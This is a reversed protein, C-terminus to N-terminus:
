NQNKAYRLKKLTYLLTEQDFIYSLFIYLSINVVIALMLIILNYNHFAYKFIVIVSAAVLTNLASYSIIGILEWIRLNLFKSVKVGFGIASVLNSFFVALSTGLIGLELTFPYILIILVFLRVPQWKTSIEPHGAGQFLPGATVSISRVLGALTLIQMCPVMHLWKQGLFLITFDQAFIFILGALPFILFVVAKLVKLYAEKLRKSNEQIQSFAPFTIQSVTHSIETSPLNSILYAMQYYGLASIGIFKGVFIDDGKTILFVLISSGIVWKGYEFLEKFKEFDFKLKPRYSHLFYSTCLQVLQAALGAWVLAWVNRLIISLAIAIGLGVSAGIFEYLFHKDFELGKEFFIIGINRFGSLLASAGIVRIVLTAQPSAFFLAIFPASFFLVSFIIIGRIVSVTWATNLYSKVNEKKQILASQFGTQSFTDLISLSLMAIGFLGFDEPSLLRAFIITRIAGM